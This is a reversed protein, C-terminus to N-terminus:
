GMSRMLERWLELTQDARYTKDQFSKVWRMPHIANSLFVEGATLLDAPQISQESVSWGGTRAVQLIKRRMVGAIPGESLAPTLLRGKELLFLNAITSDAIGGNPNCLLADNWHHQRAWKAAMVYPLFQNTKLGSFADKPKVALPYIGIDLGNSNWQDHGLPLPWSQVLLRPADSVADYLGGEGRYVTLRIRAGKEQKNKKVLQGITELLFATTFHPPVDFGLQDLTSFLREWHFDALLLRGDLWKMTEFCGDGYRFSRNDALILPQNASLFKTNHFLFPSPQM